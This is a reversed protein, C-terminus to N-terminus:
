TVTQSSGGALTQATNHSTIAFPGATNTSTVTTSAFNTGGGGARNDRVTVRFTMTRSTTPLFEGTAIGSITAPPVNANALIYGLSPFLRTPSIAPPYSRFLPAAGNDRPDATPDQAAGLDFE